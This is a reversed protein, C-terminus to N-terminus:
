MGGLAQLLVQMNKHMGDEYATLAKDDMPGTVLPDLEYVKAGTEAALTRAALDPYQPETFLPPAGLTKVLNTLDALQAPSLAEGPERNVVAAVHLGYAKAFYPFAEHFTIIDKHPLGELGAKLEEDLAELRQIYAAANQALDDSYEPYASQLGSQLNEVMAIANKADLWIHANDGHEDFAAGAEHTHENEGQSDLLPINPSADVIILKPFQATVTDLYSEMGAGNILLVQAASLTRMDGTLLQYDHLCGTNPAALNEVRIDDIGVTLNRALIYIPYFSTVVVKEKAFATPQIFLFAAIIATLLVKKMIKKM